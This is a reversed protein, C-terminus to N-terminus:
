TTMYFTIVKIMVIKLPLNRNITQSKKYTGLMEPVKWVKFHLTDMDNVRPDSDRTKKNKKHSSIAIM